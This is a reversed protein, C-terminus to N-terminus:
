EVPYSRGYYARPSRNNNIIAMSSLRVRREYDQVEPRNQYCVNYEFSDRQYGKTLCYAQAARSSPRQSGVESPQDTAACASLFILSFFLIIRM